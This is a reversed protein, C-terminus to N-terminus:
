LLVSLPAQLIDRLDSLFKAAVAGDLLRHDMTLCLRMVSKKFLNGDDDMDLEKEIGAVGLICADPQNIIPTFSEIGYMGLNSVTFTNGKYEDPQLRNTRARNALDAVEASITELSKKDADRIVPVILGSDVAVAVALNIHAHHIINGGEYSVNIEPHQKLARACAKLILDNVSFKRGIQAELDKRLKLLSTVDVKITLTVTPIESHSQFMRQGVVKRMGSIKEVTDGPCGEDKAIVSENVSQVKKEEAARLVDAKNIRGSTGTPTIKSIDIQLEKALCKALPTIRIRTPNKSIPSSVSKLDPESSSSLSSKEEGTWVEGKEGVVAMLGLIPLEDGEQALIAIIYGDVDSLVENTLKETEITALSEGAHVPDGVAKHWEQIIGTEMSVGLQPMRIETAM